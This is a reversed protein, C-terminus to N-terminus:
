EPEPLLPIEPPPTKPTPGERMAMLARMFAIKRRAAEGAMHEMEINRTVALEPHRVQNFIPDALEAYNRPLHEETLPNVDPHARVHALRDAFDPPHPPPMGLGEFSLRHRVWEIGPPNDKSPTPYDLMLNRWARIVTPNTPAYSLTTLPPYLHNYITEFHQADEHIRRPTQAGPKELADVAALVHPPTTDPLPETLDVPGEAAKAAEANAQMAKNEDLMDQWTRGPAPLAKPPGQVPVAGEPGAILKVEPGEAPIHEVTGRPARPIYSRILNAAGRVARGGAQVAGVAPFPGTVEGLVDAATNRSAIPTGQLQGRTRGAFNPNVLGLTQNRIIADPIESAVLPISRLAGRGWNAAAALPNDRVENYLQKGYQVVPTVAAKIFDAAYPFDEYPSPMGARGPERTLETTIEPM